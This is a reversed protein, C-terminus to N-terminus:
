TSSIIRSEHCRSISEISPLSQYAFDVRQLPRATRERAHESLLSSKFYCDILCTVGPPNRIPLAALVSKLCKLKAVGGGDEGPDLADGGGVGGGEGVEAGLHVRYAGSHRGLEGLSDAIDDPILQLLM